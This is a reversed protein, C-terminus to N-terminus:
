SKWIDYLDDECGGVVQHTINVVVRVWGSESMKLFFLGDVVMFFQGGEVCGALIERITETSAVQYDFYWYNHFVNTVHYNTEYGWGWNEHFDALNREQTHRIRKKHIGM